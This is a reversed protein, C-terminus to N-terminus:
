LNRIAETKINHSMKINCVPCTKPMFCNPHVVRTGCTCRCVKINIKKTYYEFEKGCSYCKPNFDPKSLEPRTKKEPLVTEVMSLFKPPGGHEAMWRAGKKSEFAYYMNPNQWWEHIQYVSGHSCRQILDQGHKLNEQTSNEPLFGLM